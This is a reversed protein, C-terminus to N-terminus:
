RRSLRKVLIAMFLGFIAFRLVTLLVVYTSPMPVSYQVGWFHWLAEFFADQFTVGAADRMFLIAAVLVVALGSVIVRFISEGNGWLLDLSKWQLHQLAHTFRAMGKYKARYYSQRSYAANYLHQGTLRVEISAAKNVAEYNGIQAFNVRLSRVLDRALNEESPLCTDLFREDLLTKEWTTYKFSCEEFQSGKFNSEKIGAGTFDCRIFRCNRFYCSTFVCQKFVVGTFIQDVSYVRTLDKRSLDVDRLGAFFEKDEIKEKRNDRLEM